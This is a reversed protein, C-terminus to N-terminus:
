KFDELFSRLIIVYVYSDVKLYDNGFSLGNIHGGGEFDSIIYLAGINLTFEVSQM